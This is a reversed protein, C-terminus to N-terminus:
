ASSPQAHDHALFHVSTCAPVSEIAPGWESAGLSWMDFSPSAVLPTVGPLAADVNSASRLLVSTNFHAKGGGSRGASHFNAAQRSVIMEPPVYATSLKHGVRESGASAAADLDILKYTHGQRVINRPKSFPPMFSFVTGSSESM